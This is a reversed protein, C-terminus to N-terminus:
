DKKFTKSINEISDKLIIVYKYNLLTVLDISNDVTTFIFPINRSSRIISKNSNDVIIYALSNNKKKIDVFNSMVNNMEKTKDEKLDIKDIIVLENDKIKASLIMALAKQKM